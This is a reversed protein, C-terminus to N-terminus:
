TQSKAVGHIVARWAERDMVLEISMFKLETLQYHVPFSPTSHNMPNCLTPCSQAVSRFQVSAISESLTNNLRFPPLVGKKKNQM